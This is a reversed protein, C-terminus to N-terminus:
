VAQVLIHVHVSRKRHTCAIICTCPQLPVIVLVHIFSNNLHLVAFVCMFKVHEPLCHVCVGYMCQYVYMYNM